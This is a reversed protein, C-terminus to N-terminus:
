PCDALYKDMIKGSTGVEEVALIKICDGPYKYQSERIVNEEQEATQILEALRKELIQGILTARKPDMFKSLSKKTVGKLEHKLEEEIEARSGSKLSRRTPSGSKPSTEESSCDSSLPRNDYSNSESDSFHITQIDVPKSKQAPPQGAFLLPNVSFLVFLFFTHTLNM